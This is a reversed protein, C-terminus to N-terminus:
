WNPPPREGGFIRRARPKIEVLKATAELWFVGVGERDATFSGRFWRDVFVDYRKGPVLDFHFSQIRAPAAPPDPAQALFPVALALDETVLAPAALIATHSAPSGCAFLGLALALWLFPRM